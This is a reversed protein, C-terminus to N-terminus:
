QLTLLFPGGRLQLRVKTPQGYFGPTAPDDYLTAARELVIGARPM